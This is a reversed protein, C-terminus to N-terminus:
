DHYWYDNNGIAPLIPTNPFHQKMLSGLNSIVAKLMNKDGATPDISDGSISHGVLDGKTLLIDIDGEQQLLQLFTEVLLQPSDCKIRGYLAYPDDSNLISSNITDDLIKPKYNNGWCDNSSTSPDYNPNLHIDNIIGIKLL